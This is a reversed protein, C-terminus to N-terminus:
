AGTVTGQIHGTGAPEDDEDYEGDDDGEDDGEDDGDDDRSSLLEEIESQLAVMEQMLQDFKISLQDIKEPIGTKKLLLEIEYMGDTGGSIITGKGM